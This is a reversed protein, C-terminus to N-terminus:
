LFEKSLEELEDTEAYSLRGVEEYISLQLYRVNRRLMKAESILEALVQKPFQRPLGRTRCWEGRKLAAEAREIIDTM